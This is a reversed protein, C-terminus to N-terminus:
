QGLGIQALYTKNDWYLYEEDIVGDTWHALTAMPLNFAKGTPPITTGDGAPMPQTFTGEMIGSVGTWEGSGFRIPHATIRTDPAYVFLQKLDSIHVDIGETVHGDPWHVKVDASHSEHLRDWEEHSFVEFDLTDFVDLHQATTLEEQQYTALDAADSSTCGFALLGIAALPAAALAFRSLSPRRTTKTTTIM